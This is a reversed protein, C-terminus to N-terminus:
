EDSFHLFTAASAAPKALAAELTGPHAKSYREIDADMVAFNTEQAPDQMSELWVGGGLNWYRTGDRGTTPRM